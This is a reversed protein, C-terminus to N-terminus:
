EWNFQLKLEPHFDWVRFTTRVNKRQSPVYIEVTREKWIGDAANALRPFLLMPAFLAAAATVAIFRCPTRLIAHRMKPLGREKGGNERKFLQRRLRRWQVYPMGRGSNRRAIQGQM